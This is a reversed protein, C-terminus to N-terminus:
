FLSTMLESVHESALKDTTRHSSIGRRQDERALRDQTEAFGSTVLEINM